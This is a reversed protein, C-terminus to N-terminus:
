RKLYMTLFIAVASSESTIDSLNLASLISVYRTLEEHFYFLILIIIAVSM